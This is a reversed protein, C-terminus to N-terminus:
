AFSQIELWRSLADPDKGLEQLRAAFCDAREADTPIWNNRHDYRRLWQQEVDEFAKSWLGIELELEPIWARPQHSNM